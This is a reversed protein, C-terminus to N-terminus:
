IGIFIERAAASDIEYLQGFKKSPIKGNNKEELKRLKVYDKAMKLAVSHYKTKM